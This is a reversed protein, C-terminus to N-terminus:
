KRSRKGYKGPKYKLENKLKIYDKRPMPGTPNPTIFNIGGLLEMTKLVDYVAKDKQKDTAGIALDKKDIWGTYTRKCKNDYASFHWKDRHLDCIQVTINKNIYDQTIRM